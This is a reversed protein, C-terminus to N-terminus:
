QLVGMLVFSILCSMCLMIIWFVMPSDFFWEFINCMLENLKKM